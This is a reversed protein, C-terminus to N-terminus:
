ETVEEAFTWYREDIDKIEQETFQFKVHDYIEVNKNFWHQHGDADLTSQILFTKNPMLIRYLKEKEVEINPYALWAQTFITFNLRAWKEHEKLNSWHNSAEDNYLAEAIEGLTWGKTHLSEIWDAVFQPIVPLEPEDLQNILKRAIELGTMIGASEGARFSDSYNFRNLNISDIEDDIKENLEKKNM